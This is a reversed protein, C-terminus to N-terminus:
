HESSRGPSDAPGTRPLPPRRSPRFPGCSSRSSRPRRRSRAYRASGRRCDRPSRPRGPWGRFPRHRPCRRHARSRQRRASMATPPYPVRRCGQASERDVGMRRSREIDGGPLLTDEPCGVPPAGPGCEARGEAPRDRDVRLRWRREVQAGGRVADHLGDVFALRPARGVRADDCGLDERRCGIRVVCPDHVGPGVTAQESAAVATAGPLRELESDADLRYGHIRRVGRM